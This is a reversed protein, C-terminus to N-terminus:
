KGGLWRNGEWGFPMVAGQSLSLPLCTYTAQWLGPSLGVVQSDCTVEHIVVFVGSANWEGTFKKM